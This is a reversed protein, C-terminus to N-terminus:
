RRRGAPAVRTVASWWRRRPSAARAAPRRRGAARGPPGRRWGRPRRGTGSRVASRGSGGSSCGTREELQAPDAAVPLVQEEGHQQRRQERDEEGLDEAACAPPAPPTGPRRRRRCPRSSPRRRGRRRGPRSWGSRRRGPTPSAAGAAPSAPAAPPVHEGDVDRDARQERQGAQDDDGQDPPEDVAHLQPRPVQSASTPTSQAPEIAKTASPRSSPGPARRSPRRRRSPCRRRRGPRREAPQPHRDLDEGLRHPRQRVRM